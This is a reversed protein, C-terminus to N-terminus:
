FEIQPLPLLRRLLTFRERPPTSAANEIEWSSGVATVSERGRSFQVYVLNRQVIGKRYGNATICVTHPWQSGLSKHVTLCYGYDAFEPLFGRADLELLISAGTEMKITAINDEIRAVIGRDGNYARTKTGRPTFLDYQNETILIVDGPEVPKRRGLAKRVVINAAKCTGRHPAIMVTNLHKARKLYISAAATVKDPAEIMRFGDDMEDCAIVDVSGKNIGDAVARLGAKGTRYNKDFVTVPLKGSAIIDAAPQGPGIPLIQNVDGALIIRKAKSKKFVADLFLADLTSIEDIFLVNCNVARKPFIERVKKGVPSLGIGRHVTDTPLFHETHDDLIVKCAGHLNRAARGIFCVGSAVLNLKLCIAYIVSCVATKGSGAPGTIISIEHEMATWVASAQVESLEFGPKDLYIYAHDIVHQIVRRQHPSLKTKKSGLVRAAIREEAEMIPRYGVCGKNVKFVGEKIGRQIANRTDEGSQGFCKWVEMEISAQGHM